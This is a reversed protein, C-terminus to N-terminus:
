TVSAAQHQRLAVVAALKMWRREHRAAVSEHAAVAVGARASARGLVTGTTAAHSRKLAIMDMSPAVRGLGDFEADITVPDLM